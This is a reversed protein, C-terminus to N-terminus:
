VPDDPAYGPDRAVVKIWRRKGCVSCRSFIRKGKSSAGVRTYGIDIARRESGCRPCELWWDEARTM